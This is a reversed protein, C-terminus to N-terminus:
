VRVYTDGVLTPNTTLPHNAIIHDVAHLFYKDTVQFLKTNLDVQSLEFRKAMLFEKDTILKGVIGVFDDKNTTTLDNQGICKIVESGARNYYRDGELAVCPVGLYLSEVITNYGGFPFSNISFDNKEAEKMYDYYEIDTHVRVNPLMSHVDYLFPPLGAYRNIGPSTFFHFIHGGMGCKNNIELLTSLLDYNYKDPGWVCNIHVKDKPVWNNQRPATPITPHQALGPILVLKETYWDECDKEVDGGIFYDIESSGTTDPHGYGCAQIPALRTNSLWIGENLM